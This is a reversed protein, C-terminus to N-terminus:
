AVNSAITCSWCCYYAAESRRHRDYTMAASLMTSFNSRSCFYIFDFYYRTSNIPPVVNAAVVGSRLLQPPQLWILYEPECRQKWSWYAACDPEFARTDGVLAYLPLASQQTACSHESTCIDRLPQSSAGRSSFSASLSDSRHVYLVFHNMSIGIFAIFCLWGHAPDTPFYVISICLKSYSSM